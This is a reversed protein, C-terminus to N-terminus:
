IGSGAVCECLLSLNEWLLGKKFVSWKRFCFSSLKSEGSRACAEWLSRRGELLLPLLGSGVGISRKQTTPGEEVSTYTRGRRYLLFCAV